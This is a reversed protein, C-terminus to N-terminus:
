LYDKIFDLDILQFDKKVSSDWDPQIQGDIFGEAYAIAKEIIELSRSDVEEPVATLVISKYPNRDPGINVTLPHTVLQYGSLIEKRVARFLEIVSISPMAEVFPLGREIVMPNNTLCRIKMM